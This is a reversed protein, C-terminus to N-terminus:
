EENWDLRQGCHPCYDIEWNADDDEFSCNCLPCYAVDYVPFGDAYGGYEFIVQKPIQKELAEIAVKIADVNATMYNFKAVEAYQVCDKLTNLAEENTMKM